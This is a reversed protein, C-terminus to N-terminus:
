WSWVAVQHVNGEDMEAALRVLAMVLENGHQVGQEGLHISFGLFPFQLFFLGCGCIQPKNIQM